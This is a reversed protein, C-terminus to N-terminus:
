VVLKKKRKKKEGEGQLARDAVAGATTVANTIIKTLAPFKKFLQETNQRLFTGSNGTHIGNAHLVNDIFVSCNNNEADYPGYKDGMKKMTKEILENFTIKKKIPINLTEANSPIKGHSALNVVENKELTYKGNIVMSLHFLEEVGIEKLAQKLKGGSAIDLAWKTAKALPTRVLTASTIFDNGHTALFKRVKPPNRTSDRLILGSGKIM